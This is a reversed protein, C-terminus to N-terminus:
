SSSARQPWDSFILTHRVFLRLGSLYCDVCTGFASPRHMGVGFKEAFAQCVHFSLADVLDIGLSDGGHHPQVLVRRGVDRRPLM